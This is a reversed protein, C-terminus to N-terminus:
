LRNSSSSIDTNVIIDFHTDLFINNNDKFHSSYYTPYNKRVYESFHICDCKYENRLIDLTKAATNKIQASFIPVIGSIDSSDSKGSVSIIIKCTDTFPDFSYSTDSSTVTLHCLTNNHSLTLTNLPTKNVLCLYGLTDPHYLYGALKHDKIVALDSITVSDDSNIYVAPIVANNTATLDYILTHLDLPLTRSLTDTLHTNKYYNNLFVGFLPQNDTRTSLLSSTDASTTVINIRRDLERDNKLFDIVERFNDPDKLINESIVCSRTHGLYLNKPSRSDLLQVASELSFSSATDI